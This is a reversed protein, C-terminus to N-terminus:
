AANTREEDPVLGARAMARGPARQGTDLSASPWYARRALRIAAFVLHREAARFADDDDTDAEAYSLAAETLAQFAEVRGFQHIRRLPAELPQGRTFRRYHCQCWGKCFRPKDCGDVACLESKTAPGVM